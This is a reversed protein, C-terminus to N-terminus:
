RCLIWSCQYSNGATMYAFTHGDCSVGELHNAIIADTANTLVQRVTIGADIYAQYLELKQDFTLYGCRDYPGLTMGDMDDKPLNVIADIYPVMTDYDDYHVYFSIVTCIIRPSQAIRLLRTYLAASTENQVMFLSNYAIVINNGLAALYQDMDVFNPNITINFSDSHPLSTQPDYITYPRVSSLTGDAARSLTFIIGEFNRGGIDIVQTNISIGLRMFMRFATFRQGNTFSKWTSIKPLQYIDSPIDIKYNYLGNANVTNERVVASFFGYCRSSLIAKKFSIIGLFDCQEKCDAYTFGSTVTNCLTMFISLYLQYWESPIRARLLCGADRIASAKISWPDLQAVYNGNLFSLRYPPLGSVFVGGNFLINSIELADWTIKAPIDGSCRMIVLFVESSAYSSFQSKIFKAYFNGGFETLIASIRAFLDTFLYNIKCILITAGNAIFKTIIAEIIEIVGNVIDNVNGNEWNSAMDIDSVIYNFSNNLIYNQVESRINPYEANRGIGKGRWRNHTLRSLAAITPERIAGLILYNRYSSILRRMTYEQDHLQEYLLAEQLLVTILKLTSSNTEAFKINSNIADGRIAPNFILSPEDLCYSTGILVLDPVNDYTYNSKSLAEYMKEPKLSKKFLETSNQRLIYTAQLNTLFDGNFTDTNLEVVSTGINLDFNLFYQNADHNTQSQILISVVNNFYYNELLEGVRILPGHLYGGYVIKNNTNPQLDYEGVTIEFPIDPLTSMQRIYESYANFRVYTVNSNNLSRMQDRFLFWKDKNTDLYDNSFLNLLGFRLLLENYCLELFGIIYIRFDIATRPLRDVSLEPAVHGCLLRLFYVYKKEDLSLTNNLATNHFSVYILRREIYISKGQSKIHAYWSRYVNFLQFYLYDRKTDFVHWHAYNYTHYLHRALLLTANLPFLITLDSDFPWFVKYSFCRSFDDRFNVYPYIISSRKPPLLIGKKDGVNIAVDKLLNRMLTFFHEPESVNSPKNLLQLFVERFNHFWIRDYINLRYYYFLIGFGFANMTHPYGNEWELLSFFMQMHRSFYNSIQRRVNLEKENKSSYVTNLQRDRLKAFGGDLDKFKASEFITTFEDFDFIMYGIEDSITVSYKDDNVSYSVTILSLFDLHFLDISSISFGFKNDTVAVNLPGSPFDM